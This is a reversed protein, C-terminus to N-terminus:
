ETTKSERNTLKKKRKIKLHSPLISVKTYKLPVPRIIIPENTHDKDTSKSNMRESLATKGEEEKSKRNNPQQIKAPTHDDRNSM